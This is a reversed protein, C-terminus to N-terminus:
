VYFTRSGPNSKEWAALNKLFPHSEALPQRDPGLVRGHLEVCFPTSNLRLTVDHIAVGDDARLKVWDSKHKNAADTASLNLADAPVPPMSFTADPGAIVGWTRAGEGSASQYMGNGREISFDIGSGPAPHGDADVVRGHVVIGALLTLTVRRSESDSPPAVETLATCGGTSHFAGVRARHARELGALVFEGRVDSAITRVAAGTRMLEDAISQGGGPPQLCQLVFQNTDAVQRSDSDFLAVTADAVPAGNGDVVTGVLDFTSSVPKPAAKETAPEAERTAVAAASTEKAAAAVASAPSRGASEDGRSGEEVKARTLVLTTALVAAAAGILLGVKTTTTVVLAGATFLPALLAPLQEREAGLKQAVRGRVQDLGRKVRTRVTEVPEGSKKAIEDASLEDLFRMVLTSRYPKTLALVADLLLQQLETRAVSEEPGSAPEPRPLAKVRAAERESSRRRSRVLNRALTALWGRLNAGHAPPRELAQLWTQQVVEDADEASHTLARAVRTLWATHALLQETTELSPVRDM